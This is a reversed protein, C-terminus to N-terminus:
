EYNLDSSYDVGAGIWYTSQNQIALDRSTLADIYYTPVVGLDSLRRLVIDRRNVLDRMLEVLMSASQQYEFSVPGAAARFQTRLTRLQNRLIRYGAYFIVLQVTERTQGDAEWNQFQPGQTPQAVDPLNQNMTTIHYLKGNEDMTYGQLLGDLRAEWFGDIMNGLWDDDTANPFEVTGPPQVERQLNTIYDGMDAISTPM